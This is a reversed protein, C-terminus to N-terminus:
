CTLFYLYYIPYLFVFKSCNIYGSQLQPTKLNRSTLQQLIYGVMFYISTRILVLNNLDLLIFFIFSLLYLLFTDKEPSIKNAIILTLNILILSHLFWYAGSPHLFVNDIFDIFTQPAVNNTPIGIRKVLILGILYISIFIIYPIAIRRAINELQPKVNKSISFFYGSIILFLPMHFTYIIDTIKNQYDSLSGIYTIHGYIMLVICIGKIFDPAILREKM